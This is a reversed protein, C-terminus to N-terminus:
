NPSIVKVVRGDRSVEFFLFPIPRGLFQKKDYSWYTGPIDSMKIDCPNGLLKVVESTAMGVRVNHAQVQLYQNYFSDSVVVALSFTGVFIFLGVILSGIFKSM